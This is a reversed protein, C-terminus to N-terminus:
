VDVNTFTQDLILCIHTNKVLKFNRIAPALCLKLNTFINEKM